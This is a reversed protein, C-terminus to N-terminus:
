NHMVREFVKSVSPLISIPRYNNFTHRDGNKHVPIVKAIKLKQPFVGSSFTQNIIVTLPEAIDDKILKLLKNSLNNCGSTSKNKLKNIIEKISDSNVM